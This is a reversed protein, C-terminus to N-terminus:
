IPSRFSRVRARSSLTERTLVKLSLVPLLAADKIGWTCSCFVKTWSVVADTFSIAAERLETAPMDPALFSTASFSIIVLLSPMSCSSSVLLAKSCTFRCISSRISILLITPEMAEWVFIREMFAAMSAAWAPSAPLPKATTASSIRLSAMDTASFLVVM